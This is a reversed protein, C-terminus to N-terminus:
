SRGHIATKILRVVVIILTIGGTLELISDNYINSFAGLLLSILGCAVGVAGDLLGDSKRGVMCAGIIMITAGGLFMVSTDEYTYEDIISAVIFLILGAWLGITRLALHIALRARRRRKTAKIKSCIADYSEKIKFFDESDGFLLEAKQYSQKIKTLWADSIGKNALIDSENQEVNFNTSALLMFEMVDEKTNPIPFSKILEIKQKDNEIRSLTLSFEQLSHSSKVGRIEYGCSPCVSVFAELTEGCNPCKHVEGDYVIKRETSSQITPKGCEPCFKANGSLEKGCNSCFPM